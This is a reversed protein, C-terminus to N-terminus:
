LLELSEKEDGLPKSVDERSRRRKKAAGHMMWAAAGTMTKRGLAEQVDYAAAGLSQRVPSVRKKHSSRKPGPRM